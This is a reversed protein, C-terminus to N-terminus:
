RTRSQDGVNSPGHGQNQGEFAGRDRDQRERSFRNGEAEEREERERPGAADTRRKDREQSKRATEVEEPRKRSQDPNQHRNQTTMVNEQGCEPPHTAAL